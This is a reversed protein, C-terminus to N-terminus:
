LGGNKSPIFYLNKPNYALTIEKGVEFECEENAQFTFEVLMNGIKVKGYYFGQRFEIQKLYGKILDMNHSTQSIYPRFIEPRIVLWGNNNEITHDVNLIFDDCYFVGNDIRGFVINKAGLFRAIEATKPREYLEKASGIQLLKGNRMVGIRDSLQFAEDRDHTVFLCTVNFKKHLGILLERMEERLEPDLASFPEDLLLLKPEIVLARALSVRQQEGGSLKSAYRKEYGKLGVANLMQKAKELRIIKALGKVKLGFAVNEEITMHPFLLAEQFVMSFGRKEPPISTINESDLNFEGSTPAILGAILKLLTTKGCGSPGLLSFFEGKNVTLKVDCISFEDKDEYKKSVNILNLGEINFV